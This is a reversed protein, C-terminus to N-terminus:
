TGTTPARRNQHQAVASALLTAPVMLAYAMPRYWAPADGGVGLLFLTLGLPVCIATTAVAHTLERQGALRAAVFAGLFSFVLGYAFGALLIRSDSRLVETMRDPPVGQILLVIAAVAGIMLSASLTGGIDIAAGILIARLSLPRAATTL